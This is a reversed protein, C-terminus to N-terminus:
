RWVAGLDPAKGKTSVASVGLNRDRPSEARRHRKGPLLARFKTFLFSEICFSPVLKNSKYALCLRQLTWATGAKGTHKGAGTGM